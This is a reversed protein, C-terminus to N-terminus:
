RQGAYHAEPARRARALQGLSQLRHGFDGPHRRGKVIVYGQPAREVGDMECVGNELRCSLGLREYGFQDFFRLLSRQIAAAAGAGGLASINQVARQSIKRPYSGPAARSARTSACRSGTRRARARRVRADIRGTITGFDFTRTLLELDLNKM